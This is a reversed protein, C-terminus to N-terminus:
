FVTTWQSTLSKVTWREGASRITQDRLVAGGEQQSRSSLRSEPAFRALLIKQSVSWIEKSPQCGIQSKHSFIRRLSEQCLALSSRPTNVSVLERETARLGHSHRERRRRGEQCKACGRSQSPDLYRLRPQQQSATPPQGPWCSSKPHTTLNSTICLLLGECGRANPRTGLASERSPLYQRLM